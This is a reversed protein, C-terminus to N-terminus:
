LRVVTGNNFHHRSAFQSFCVSVFPIGPFNVGRFQTAKRRDRFERALLASSGNCVHRDKVAIKPRFVFRYVLEQLGEVFPATM